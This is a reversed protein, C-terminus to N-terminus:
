KARHGQLKTLADSAAQRVREDPDSQAARLADLTASDAQKQEGLQTAAWARNEAEAHQLTYILARPGVREIARHARLLEDGSLTKLKTMIAPMAADPTFQRRHEIIEIINGEAHSSHILVDFRARLLWVRNEGERWEIPADGGYFSTKMSWPLYYNTPVVFADFTEPPSVMTPRHAGVFLLMWDGKKITTNDPILPKAGLKPAYYDIGWHGAYWITSDPSMTRVGAISETVADRWAYGEDLDTALFVFAIGISVATAVRLLRPPLNLNEITFCQRALLFFTAIAIAFVRREGGFISSKMAIFIEVCLWAVLFWTIRDIGGPTRTRRWLAVILGAVIIVALLTFFIRGIAHSLLFFYGVPLLLLAIQLAGRRWRLLAGALFVLIPIAGGLFAPLSAWTHLRPQTSIPDDLQL